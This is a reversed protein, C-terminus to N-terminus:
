IQVVSGCWCNKKKKDGPGHGDQANVLCLEGRRCSDTLRMFIRSIELSRVRLRKMEM